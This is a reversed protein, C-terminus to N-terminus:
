AKRFVPQAVKGRMLSQPNDSDLARAIVGFADNYAALTEDIDSEALAACISHGTLFLIGRAAVEQQFLSRLLLSSEGSKDKFDIVSKPSPGICRVYDSLGHNDTLTTVSDQLRDGRKWLQKIVDGEDLEKLVAKCAALSAAEGGATFSFFIEGFVEMLDQRGVVASIPLGGGMAKGFCALDPTVGYFEQAGGRSLRFGTVIEDFILLAGHEHTLDAVSQLFGPTPEEVGVPEMIVTGIERPFEEFLARLSDLNNYEFTKTLEQVARPVGRARSTTGIFWDHWGHYGCCAIRDRGTIARALRVAGTTADSGNKGFRVQEACPIREVLMEAVEVELLTPLSQSVGLELQRMVAECVKPHAHGLISPGLGMVYDIFENGDVDWVRAGKGRSLFLPSAGAPYQTYGKSFTQSAAPIVKLSRELLSDSTRYDM